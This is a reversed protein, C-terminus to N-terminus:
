QKKGSRIYYAAVVPMSYIIPFAYRPQNQIQPAAIIIFFSIWLPLLVMLVRKSKDKLAFATVAWLMIIYFAVNNLLGIVPLRSLLAYYSVMITCIGDMWEPVEFNIEDLIGYDLMIEEGVNCDKNYVINDIDLAFLYYNQNWTAEVYCWPHRFFQKVWVRLYDKLETSSEAHYMGKIPDSTMEDYSESIQDYFLVKDIIQKEEETVEDGYDRVFRATQQFPLSLMEKPGNQQVDYHVTIVGTIMWSLFLPFLVWLYRTFGSVNLAAKGCRRMGAAEMLMIILMVPIYVYLGNNRFLIMFTVAAVYRCVYKRKKWVEKDMTWEMMCLLFLVFCATYLYDKIPFSAYGAFYPAIGYIGMTLYFLWSPTEWRRMFTLSWALVLSMCVSQLIVFLFLGLNASGLQLGIKIVSGFLWTHFLPQADSYAQYGFYYSLENWNDYSMTGPYRLLIHPLWCLIITLWTALFPHQKYYQGLQCQDFATGPRLQLLDHLLQIFTLYLMYMGVIWIFAKLMRIDSDWLIHLTGAYSFAIGAAYMIALFAALVRSYKVPKRETKVWVFKYFCYFVLSLITIQFGKGNLDQQIRELVKYISLYAANTIGSEAAESIGMDMMLSLATCVAGFLLWGKRQYINQKGARSGRDMKGSEQQRIQLKEMRWHM